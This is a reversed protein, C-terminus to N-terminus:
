HAIQRMIDVIGTIAGIAVECKNFRLKRSLELQVIQLNHSYGPYNDVWPDGYIHYALCESGIFKENVIVNLNFNDRLYHTMLNCIKEDCLEGYRTGIEIDIERGNEDLINKMGHLSIYLFSNSIENTVTLANKFHLINRLAERQEKNAAVSIENQFNIPRNLDAVTRPILCQIVGCGTRKAIKHSLEMTNEDSEEPTGSGHPVDIVVPVTPGGLYFRIYHGTKYIIKMTLHWLKDNDTSGIALNSSIETNKAM